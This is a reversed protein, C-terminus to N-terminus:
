PSRNEDLRTGNFSVTAPLPTARRDPGHMRLPSVFVRRLSSLAFDMAPIPRKRARGAPMPASLRSWGSCTCMACGHRGRRGAFREVIRNAWGTSFSRIRSHIHRAIRRCGGDHQRIRHVFAPADVIRAWEAGSAAVHCRSRQVERQLRVRHVAWQGAAACVVIAPVAVVRARRLGDPRAGVLRQMPLEVRGAAPVIKDGGGVAIRAERAGHGAADFRTAM